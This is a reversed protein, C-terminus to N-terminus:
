MRLLHVLHTPMIALHPVQKQCQFPKSKLIIMCSPTKNSRTKSHLLEYPPSGLNLFFFFFFFSNYNYLNQKEGMNAHQHNELKGLKYSISFLLGSNQKNSKNQKTRSPYYHERAEQHPSFSSPGPAPVSHAAKRDMGKNEPQGGTRTSPGRSM